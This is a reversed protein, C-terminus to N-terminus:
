GGHITARIAIGFRSNLLLFIGQEAMRNRSIALKVHVIYNERAGDDRGLVAIFPSSSFEDLSIPM